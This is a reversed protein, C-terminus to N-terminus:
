ASGGPRLPPLRPPRGGAGPRGAVHRALHAAGHGLAEAVALPPVMPTSASGVSRIGRAVVGTADTAGSSALPAAYRAPAAPATAVGRQLAPNVTGPVSPFGIWALNTGAISLLFPSAASIGLYAVLLVPTPSGVALELPVVMLCPLFALEVFLWWGRRALSSLPRFPWLLTFVPLVVLLV